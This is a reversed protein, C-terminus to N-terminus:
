VAQGVKILIRFLAGTLVSLSYFVMNSSNNVQGRPLSLECATQVFEKLSDPREEQWGVVPLCLLTLPFSVNL